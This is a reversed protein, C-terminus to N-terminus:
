NSITQFNFHLYVYLLIHDKFKKLIINLFKTYNNYKILLQLLVFLDNKTLRLFRLNKGCISIWFLMNDHALAIDNEIVLESEKLTNVGEKEGAFHCFYISIATNKQKILYLWCLFIDNNKSCSCFLLGMESKIVPWLM